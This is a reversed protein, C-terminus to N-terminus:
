RAKMVAAVFADLSSSTSLTFAMNPVLSFGVPVVVHRPGKITEAGSGIRAQAVFVPLPPHPFVFSLTQCM